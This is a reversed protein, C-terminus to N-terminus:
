KKGSAQRRELRKLLGYFADESIGLLEGIAAMMAGSNWMSVLLEPQEPGARCGVRPGRIVKRVLKPDGVASETVM